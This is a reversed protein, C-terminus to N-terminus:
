VPNAKREPCRYRRGTTYESKRFSVNAQFEQGVVGVYGPNLGRGSGNNTGPYEAKSRRHVAMKEDRAEGRDAHFNQDGM